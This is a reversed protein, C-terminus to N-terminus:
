TNDERLEAIYHFAIDDTTLNLPSSLEELYKEFKNSTLSANVMCIYARMQWATKKIAPAMKLITTGRAIVDQFVFCELPLDTPGLFIGRGTSFEGAEKWVASYTEMKAALCSVTPILSFPRRLSNPSVLISKLPDLNPAVVLLSRELISTLKGRFNPSTWIKDFNIFYTEADIASADNILAILDSGLEGFEPNGLFQM